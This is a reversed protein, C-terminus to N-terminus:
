FSYGLSIMLFKNYIKIKDKKPDNFTYSNAYQFLDMFGLNYKIGFFLGFSFQYETGISLGFDSKQLYKNKDAAENNGPDGFLSTDNFVNGNNDKRRISANILTSVYPGTFIQWGKIHFTLFFPYLDLYQMKLNTNYKGNISDSLYVHAGRQNFLLLHKLWFYKGLQSNVLLGAHFSQFGSTKSDSFIYDIESGYLNSNTYGILLGLSVKNSSFLKNRFTESTDIETKSQSYLFNQNYFFTIASILCLIKKM